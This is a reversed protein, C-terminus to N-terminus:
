RLMENMYPFRARATPWFTGDAFGARLEERSYGLLDEVIERTHQGILPSPLHNEAPTRSLKFPANQVKHLGLAPHEVALYTERHRLQPDHEVRDEASQVPLARVGALQCCETLEYKGLTMSWAEIQEDLEQQHQLRGGLTAFKPAAAWSPAGMVQVLRRWEEDSYCVITCWDNYDGPHTRYANHPAVTPGRYNNVLPTGPWHARNGPPFGPRRSGRGNVTFDLLSPGNLPVSSVMQSLDIHQGQGTMNRHYLGTMACMAGYMGGTDDMYSWGWGAPQHGPLGSQFTQGSVAQAVTEAAPPRWQLALGGGPGPGRLALGGGHAPDAGTGPLPVAGLAALHDICVTSATTGGGTGTLELGGLMSPVADRALTRGGPAV